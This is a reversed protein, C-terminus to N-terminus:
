YYEFVVIMGNSGANGAQNGGGNVQISGGAGSGYSEGAIGSASTNIQGRAGSGMHSAGGYGSVAQTGSLINSYLGPNGNINLDGNTGTGGTGGAVLSPSSTAGSGGSGSGGTATLTGFSTSSGNQGANNGSAGGPGGSGIIYGYVNSLASGTYFKECYGGGGGGGTAGAQSAGTASGGSGGGGGVIRVWIAKCTAPVTYTASGTVSIFQQITYPQVRWSLKGTGDNILQSSTSSGQVGSWTVTYANGGASSTMTVSGITMNTSTFSTNPNAAVATWSLNGAGDNQLVWSASGQSTPWNVTYINGNAASSQTVSGITVSPFGGRVEAALSVSGNVLNGGVDTMLPGQGYSHFRMLGTSCLSLQASLSQVSGVTGGTNNYFTVTSKFNTNPAARFAIIGGTYTSNASDKFGIASARNLTGASSSGGTRGIQLMELITPSDANGQTIILSNSAVTVGMLNGTVQSSLSLSGQTQSLPLNGVVQATLSLSGQTQSLPLNDRVQLVLSISGQTQSLPLNGVVQTTLSLSGQTQSLPLNDRVQLVLSVSGIADSQLSTSGVTINGSGDTRLPASVSLSALNPASSFTKVGAFTQAASSVLGPFTGTASQQYFTFSGISAGSPNASAGDLPGVLYPVGTASGTLGGGSQPFQGYTGSM